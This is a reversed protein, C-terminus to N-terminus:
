DTDLLIRNGDADTRFVEDLDLDFLDIDDLVDDDTLSYDDFGLEEDSYGLEVDSMEDLPTLKEDPKEKFAPNYKPNDVIGLAPETKIDKVKKTFGFASSLEKAILRSLAGM